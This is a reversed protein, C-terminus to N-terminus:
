AFGHASLPQQHDGSRDRDQEARHHENKWTGPRQRQDPEDGDICGRAAYQQEHEGKSDLPPDTVRGVNTQPGRMSVDPM